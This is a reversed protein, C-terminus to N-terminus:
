GRRGWKAFGTAKILHGADAALDRKRAGAISRELKHYRVAIERGSFHSLYPPAVVDIIQQDDWGASALFLVIATMTPHRSAANTMIIHMADEISYGDDRMQEWTERIEGVVGTHGAGTGTNQAVNFLVRLEKFLTEVQSATILPLEDLPVDLLTEGDPYFYPKGTNPHRPHHLVFQGTTGYSAAMIHQPSQTTIPTAQDQRYFRLSKYPEGVRWVPSPGCIEDAMGRVTIALDYQKHDLDLGFLGGGSCSGVGATAGRRVWRNHLEDPVPETNFRQWKPYLPAKDRGKM